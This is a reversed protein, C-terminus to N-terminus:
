ANPRSSLLPGLRTPSDFDPSPPDIKSEVYLLYRFNPEDKAFMLNILILDIPGNM